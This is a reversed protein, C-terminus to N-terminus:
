LFSLAFVVLVIMMIIGLFLVPVFIATLVIAALTEMMGEMEIVGV